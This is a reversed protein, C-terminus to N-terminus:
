PRLIMKINYTLVGNCSLPTWNYSGSIALHKHVSKISSYGTFFDVQKTLYQWKARWFQNRVGSFVELLSTKQGRLVAKVGRFSQFINKANDFQM